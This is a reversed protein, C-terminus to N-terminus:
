FFASFHFSAIAGIEKGRRGMTLSLSKESMGPSLQSFQSRRDAFVGREM